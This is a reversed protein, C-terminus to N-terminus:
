GGRAPLVYHVFSDCDSGYTIVVITFPHVIINLGILGELCVM